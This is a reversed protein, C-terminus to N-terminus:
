NSLPYNIKPHHQYDRARFMDERLRDLKDSFPINLDDFLYHFEDLFEMKPLEYPERTVQERAGEVQNKYIHCDGLNCILEDPIMNAQKALVELLLAYSAINFPLGLPVDVSRMNFMLSIARKPIELQDFDAHTKRMALGKYAKEYYAGREELSLERTYAQYGYHCPPLTMDQLDAPNWATVMLRRSDPNSDLDNALNALQDIHAEKRAEEATIMGCDVAGNQVGRYGYREWERWQKGYIPGLDGWKESFADNMLVENEFEERTMIRTRNQSPDDVHVEWDPEELSNAYTAYRKYADGTWIHCNRALLWRLDTRGQLFWVLETAVTGLPVKKTTLLPFGESMKHRLQRGFVSLTGTGTRDVKDHGVELIQKMLQIYQQEINM